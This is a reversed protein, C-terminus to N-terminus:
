HYFMGAASFSPVLALMLPLAIRRGHHSHPMRTM